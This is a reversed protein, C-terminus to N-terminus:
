AVVELLGAMTHHGIGCYENCAIRYLGPEDPTFQLFYDYDPVIQLSIIFGEGILEFGHLLDISGIHLTYREGAKVQLANLNGGAHPVWWAWQSAYMYIDGGTLASWATGADNEMTVQSMALNRTNGDRFADMMDDANDYKEYIEPPNQDGMFVWGVTMVGMMLIMVLILFSWLREDKGLAKASWGDGPPQLSM